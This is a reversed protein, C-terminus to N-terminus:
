NCSDEEENARRQFLPVIGWNVVARLTTFATFVTTILLLLAAPIGLDSQSNLLLRVLGGAFATASLICISALATLLLRM